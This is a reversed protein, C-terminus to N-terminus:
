LGKRSIAERSGPIWPIKGEYRGESQRVNTFEKCVALLDNKGKDEVGLVDLSYMKEYDSM